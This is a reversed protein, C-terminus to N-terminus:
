GVHVRPRLAPDPEARRLVERTVTATFDSSDQRRPAEASPPAPGASRRCAGIM